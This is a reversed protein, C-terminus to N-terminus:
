IDFMCIDGVCVTAPAKNGATIYPAATTLAPIAAAM